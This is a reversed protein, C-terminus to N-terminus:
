VALKEHKRLLELIDNVCTLNQIDEDELMIEFTEDIGAILTLTGLSDWAPIKDRPTDATISETSEEFLEAIWNLAEQQNM